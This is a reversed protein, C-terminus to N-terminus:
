AEAQHLLKVKEVDAFTKIQDSHFTALCMQYHKALVTKRAEGKYIVIKVPYMRPVIGSVPPSRVEAIGSDDFKLIETLPDGNSAEGYEIEAYVDEPWAKLRRFRGAYAIHVRDDDLLPSLNSSRDVMFFVFHFELTQLYKSKTRTPACDMKLLESLEEDGKAEFNEQDLNDFYFQLLHNRYNFLISLDRQTTQMKAATDRAQIYYLEAKAFDGQLDYHDALNRLVFAVNWTDGKTDNKVDEVLDVYLREVLDKKNEAQAVKAKLFVIETRYKAVQNNDKFLGDALAKKFATEAKQSDAGAAPFKQKILFYSAKIKHMKCKRKHYSETLQQLIKEIRTSPGLIQDWEDLFVKIELIHLLCDVMELSNEGHHILILKEIKLLCKEADKFNHRAQLCKRLALLVLIHNKDSPSLFTRLKKLCSILFPEASDYLKKEM